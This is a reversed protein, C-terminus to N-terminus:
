TFAMFNNAHTSLDQTYPPPPLYVEHKTLFQPGEYWYPGAVVDGHGDNNFDGASAGEAFFHGSLQTKKWTPIKPNSSPSPSPSPSPPPSPPSPGGHCFSAQDSCCDGHSTCSDDCQCSQQPEFACSGRLACPGDAAPPPKTTPLTQEGGSGGCTQQYDGCCDGAATCGGDCQCPASGDFLSSCGRVACIDQPTPPQETISTISTSSTKTTVICVNTYDQCCDKAGVCNTDCQCQAGNTYLGCGIQKCSNAVASVTTTAAAAAATTTTAAATPTASTTSATCAPQQQAGCFRNKVAKSPKCAAGQTGKCCMTQLEMPADCSLKCNDRKYKGSTKGPKRCYWVGPICV